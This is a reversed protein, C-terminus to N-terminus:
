HQLALCKFANLSSVREINTLMIAKVQTVVTCKWISSHITILVSFAGRSSSSRPTALLESMDSLSFM